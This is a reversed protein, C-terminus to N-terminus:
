RAHIILWGKTVGFRYAEAENDNHWLIDATLSFRSHMTDWVIYDKFWEGRETLVSVVTGCRFKVGGANFFLDRSLALTQPRIKGCSATLPDDDTQRSVANYASVRNLEVITPLTYNYMRRIEETREHTNQYLVARPTIPQVAVMLLLGVVGLTMLTKTTM